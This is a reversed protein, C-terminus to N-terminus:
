RAFTPGCLQYGPDVSGCPPAGPVFGFLQPYRNQGRLSDSFGEEGVFGRAEDQTASDSEMFRLFCHANYFTQGFRILSEAKGLLCCLRLVQGGGVAELIREEGALNQQGCIYNGM